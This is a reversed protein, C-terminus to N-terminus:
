ADAKKIVGLAKLADYGTSSLPGSVFVFLAEAWTVGGLVSTMMAAVGGLLMVLSSGWKSMFGAPAWKKLAFLVLQIALISMAMWQGARALDVVALLVDVAEGYNAPEQALALAPVLFLAVVVMRRM